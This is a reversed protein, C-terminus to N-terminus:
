QYKVYLVALQTYVNIHTKEQHLFQELLVILESQHGFIEFLEVADELHDPSGMLSQAAQIAMQIEGAELFFGLCEKWTKTSNSKRAFELAQSYQTMYLFCSCIKPNNKLQDFIVLASEFLGEQFFREAVRPM